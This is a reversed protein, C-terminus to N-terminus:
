TGSAANQGLDITDIDLQVKLESGGTENSIADPVKDETPTPDIKVHSQSEVMPYGYDNQKM